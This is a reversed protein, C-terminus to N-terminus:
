KTGRYRLRLCRHKLYTGVTGVEGFPGRERTEGCPLVYDGFMGRLCICDNLWGWILDICRDRRLLVFDVSGCISWSLVILLIHVSVVKLIFNKRLVVLRAAFSGSRDVGFYRLRLM